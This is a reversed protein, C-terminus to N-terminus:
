EVLDIVDINDLIDLFAYAAHLRRQTNPLRFTSNKTRHSTNLPPQIHAMERRLPARTQAREPPVNMLHKALLKLM